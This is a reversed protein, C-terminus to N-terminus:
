LRYDIDLKVSKEGILGGCVERAMVVLGKCVGFGAGCRRSKTIEAREIM